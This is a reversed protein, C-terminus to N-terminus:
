GAKGGLAVILSHHGGPQQSCSLDRASAKLKRRYMVAALRPRAVTAPRARQLLGAASPENVCQESRARILGM